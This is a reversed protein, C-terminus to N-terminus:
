YHRACRKACLLHNIFVHKIFNFVRGKNLGHHWFSFCEFSIWDLTKMQFNLTSAWHVQHVPVFLYLQFFVYSALLLISFYWAPWSGNGLERKGESVLSNIWDLWSTSWNFALSNGEVQPLCLSLNGDCYFGVCACKLSEILIDIKRKLVIIMEVIGKNPPPTKISLWLNLIAHSKIKLKENGKCRQFM